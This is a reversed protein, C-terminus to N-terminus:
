PAGLEGMSKGTPLGGRGFGGLSPAHLSNLKSQMREVSAAVQAEMASLGATIGTSLQQGAQQGAPGLEQVKSKLEETKKTADELPQVPIIPGAHNLDAPRPVPLPPGSPSQERMKARARGNELQDYLGEDRLKKMEATVLSSLDAPTDVQDLIHGSLAPPVDRAGRAQRRRAAAIEEPRYARPNQEMRAVEADIEAMGSIAADYRKKNNRRRNFDAGDAGAQAIEAGIPEVVHKKVTEIFGANRATEAAAELKKAATQLSDVATKIQDSALAAILGGVGAKARDFSEGLRDVSAQTDSVVRKFDADITGSAQKLAAVFENLKDKNSLLARMGRAFEMDSFLQPLKSLDGKLAKDSLETFVSVLDKGEKRAKDMEKRLNIGFKEFRKATEESEMKAFINQASAAAEEASGSGMRITQLMAVLKSMGENGALGVAKAAPLISPLYRAMDKLEFKGLKGGKALIDYTQELDRSAIKFNDVAASTTTAIDRVEAGTAQAVKAVTPLSKMADEFEMGSATLSDLGERVRDIPQATELAVKRVEATATGIREEAADGTIAARRMQRDVDAARVVADKAGRMTVYGAAIQAGRKLVAAQQDLLRQASMMPMAQSQARRFASLQGAASALGPRLQDKATIVAEVRAVNAM